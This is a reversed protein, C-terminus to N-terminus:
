WRKDPCKAAKLSTKSSIFCRCIQCRNNKMHECSSCIKRRITTLNIDARVEGTAIAHEVVDKATDMISSAAKFFHRVKTIKAM